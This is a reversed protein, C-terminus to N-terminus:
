VNGVFRWGVTGGDKGTSRTEGVLLVRVRAVDVFRELDERHLRENEDQGLKGVFREYHVKNIFTLTAVGDYTVGEMGGIVVNTEENANKEIYHRTHSLPFESGALQKLLPVHSTEWHHKFAELSVNPKRPVFVLLTYTM